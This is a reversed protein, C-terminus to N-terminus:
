YFFLPRTYGYITTLLIIVPEIGTTGIKVMFQLFPRNSSKEPDCFFFLHQVCLYLAWEWEINDTLVALFIKLFRM